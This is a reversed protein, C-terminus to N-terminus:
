PMNRMDEKSGNRLTTTIRFDSCNIYDHLLINDFYTLYHHFYNGNKNPTHIDAGLEALIKICDVNGMWAAM